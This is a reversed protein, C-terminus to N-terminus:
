RVFLTKLGPGFRHDSRISGHVLFLGSQTLALVWSFDFWNFIGISGDFVRSGTVWHVAWVGTRM